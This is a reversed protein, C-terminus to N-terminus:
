TIDGERIETLDQIFKAAKVEYIICKDTRVTFGHGGQLLIIVDGASLDIEKLLRQKNDYIRVTLRGEIIVICEQTQLVDRVAKEHYHNKLVKNKHGRYKRTCVQITDETGTYWKVGNELNRTEIYIAYLVGDKRIEQM